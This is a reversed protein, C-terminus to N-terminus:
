APKVLPLNFESAIKAMVEDLPRGLGAEADAVSQRLSALFEDRTEDAPPVPELYLRTGDPPPPGDCVIVGNVVTGYWSM